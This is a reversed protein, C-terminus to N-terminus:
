GGSVVTRSGRARIPSIAARRTRVSPLASRAVTIGTGPSTMRRSLVKRSGGPWHSALATSSNTTCIPQFSNAEIAATAWLYRRAGARGSMERTAHVLAGPKDQIVRVNAPFRRRGPTAALRGIDHSHCGRRQLSLAAAAMTHPRSVSPLYATTRQSSDPSDGVSDDGPLRFRGALAGQAPGPARVGGRSDVRARASRWAGRASAALLQGSSQRV